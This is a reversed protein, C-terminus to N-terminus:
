SLKTYTKQPTNQRRVQVNTRRGIKEDKLGIQVHWRLREHWKRSLSKLGKGTAEGRCGVLQLTIGGLTM